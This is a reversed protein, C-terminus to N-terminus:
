RQVVKEPKSLHVLFEHLQAPDEIPDGGCHACIPQDDEYQLIVPENLHWCWYADRFGFPATVLVAAYPERTPADSTTSM